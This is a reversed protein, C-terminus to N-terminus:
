IVDGQALEPHISLVTAPYGGGAEICVWGGLGFVQDLWLRQDGSFLGVASYPLVPQEDTSHYGARWPILKDFSSGYSLAKANRLRISAAAVKKRKGQITGQGPAEVYLPQLRAQFIRGVVVQSGPASLAVAGAGVTFPGQLVGDVLAYVTVGDLHDLGTVTSVVPDMRWSGQPIPYPVGTGPQAPFERTIAVYAQNGAVVSTIEARSGAANIHKGVDGVTFVNATTQALVGWGVGQAMQLAAAPYNSTISLASDLQWADSDQNYVQTALREIHRSGFRVISAYVASTAGEQIAVISEWIGPTEHRAWGIVEQSRLYTMSVLAGDDLICWLIKTPVDQWAWDAVGRGAFLHESLVTVDTGKYSNSFVDFQLDRILGERQVFMINNDVVVPRIDRSGYFSQPVVVANTPTVATPNGTSASGGTLQVVGSNTGLLLGGPM